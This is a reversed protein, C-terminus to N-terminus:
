KLCIEAAHRDLFSDCFHHSFHHKDDRGAFFSAIDNFAKMTLPTGQRSYVICACVLAQEEEESFAYRLSHTSSLLGCESAAKKLYGASYGYDKAVLEFAYPRTTARNMYSVLAEKWDKPLFSTISIM